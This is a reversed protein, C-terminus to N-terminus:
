MKKIIFLTNHELEPHEVLSDIAQYQKKLAINALRQGVSKKNKPQIDNTPSIDEYRNVSASYM